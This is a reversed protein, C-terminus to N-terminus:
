ERRLALIYEQDEKDLLVFKALFDNIQQNSQPQSERVISDLIEAQLDEAHFFEM